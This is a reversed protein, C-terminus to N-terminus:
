VYGKWEESLRVFTKGILVNEDYDEFRLESNDYRFVYEEGTKPDLLIVLTSMTRCEKVVQYKMRLLIDNMTPSGGM